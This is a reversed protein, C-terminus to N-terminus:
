CIRALIKITDYIYFALSIIAFMIKISSVCIEDMEEYDIVSKFTHHYLLYYM